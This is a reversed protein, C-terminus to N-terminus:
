STARPSTRGTASRSMVSSGCRTRPRTMAAATAPRSRLRRFSPSLDRRMSTSSARTRRPARNATRRNPPPEKPPPAAGTNARSGSLGDHGLLDNEHRGSHRRCQRFLGGQAGQRLLRAQRRRDLDAGEFKDWPLDRGLREPGSPKEAAAGAGSSCLLAAAIAALWGPFRSPLTM